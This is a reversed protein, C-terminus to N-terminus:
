IRALPSQGSTLVLELQLEKASRCRSERRTLSGIGSFVSPM